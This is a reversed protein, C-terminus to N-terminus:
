RLVVGAFSVASRTAAEHWVRYDVVRGELDPMLELLWALVPLGCVHYRDGVRRAETWLDIASGTAFRMSCVVTTSGSTRSWPTPRSPIALSPDWTHCTSPRWWWRGTVIIVRLADLFPSVGPIAGPREVRDLWETVSGCLIPIMPIPRPM